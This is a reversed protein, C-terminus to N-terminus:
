HGWVGGMQEADSKACAKDKCRAVSMEKGERESRM